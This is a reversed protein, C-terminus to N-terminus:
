VRFGLDRIGVGVRFGRYGAGQITSEMKNEVIGVDGAGFMYIYIYMYM